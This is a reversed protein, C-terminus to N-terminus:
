RVRDKLALLARRLRLYPGVGLGRKLANRLAQRARLPRLPADEGSALREFLVLSTGPKMPVRPIAFPDGDPRWLDIRSVCLARYGAARAAAGIGPHHFGTPASGTMVPIGLGDELIRRSERLEHDLEAATLSAPPRHTLSHTGIEMGASALERIQDWRMHPSQDIWSATVFFTATFGHARLIPLAHTTNSAHGDDFTLVVPAGGGVPPAGGAYLALAGALSVGRLGLRELARMQAEFAAPTLVYPRHSAAVAAPDDAIDHYMFVPMPRPSVSRTTM